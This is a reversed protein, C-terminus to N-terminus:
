KFYVYRIELNNDPWCFGIGVEAEKGDITGKLDLSLTKAPAPIPGISPFQSLLKLAREREEPPDSPHLGCDDPHAGTEEADDWSKQKIASILKAVLENLGANITKQGEPPSLSIESAYEKKKKEDLSEGGRPELDQITWNDDTFVFEGHMEILDDGEIYEYELAIKTVWDPVEGIKPFLRLLELLPALQEKAEPSELEKKAESELEESYQQGTLRAITRIDLNELAKVYELVIKQCDLKPCSQGESSWPHVSLTTVMLGVM